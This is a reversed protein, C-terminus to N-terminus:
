ATGNSVVERDKGGRIWAEKVLESLYKRAECWEVDTIEAGSVMKGDGVEKVIWLRDDVDKEVRIVLDEAPFIFEALTKYLRSDAM